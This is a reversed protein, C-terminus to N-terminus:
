IRSTRLAAPALWLSTMGVLVAVPLAIWLLPRALRRIGLGASALVAMESDRYLRGYALLVGLFLALPLLLPLM